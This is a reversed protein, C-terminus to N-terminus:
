YYVFHNKNQKSIIYKKANNLLGLLLAITEIHSLVSWSPYPLDMLEPILLESLNFRHNMSHYLIFLISNSTFLSINWESAGWTRNIELSLNKQQKVHWIFLEKKSSSVSNSYLNYNKISKIIIFHHNCLEGSLEGHPCCKAGIQNDHHLVLTNDQWAWLPLSSYHCM